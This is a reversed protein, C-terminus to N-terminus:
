TIQTKLLMKLIRTSLGRITCPQSSRARNSPKTYIGISNSRGIYPTTGRIRHRCFRSPTTNVNKTVEPSVTDIRTPWIRRDPVTRQSTRSVLPPKLCKQPPQSLSACLFFLNM